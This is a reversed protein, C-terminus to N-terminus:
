VKNDSIILNQLEDCVWEEDSLDGKGFIKLRVSKIGEKIKCHRCSLDSHNMKLDRYEDVLIRLDKSLMDIREWLVVKDQKRM